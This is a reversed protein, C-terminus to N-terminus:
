IIYDFCPQNDHRKNQIQLRTVQLSQSCSASNFFSALAGFLPASLVETGLEMPGPMYSYMIIHINRNCGHVELEIMLHSQQCISFVM